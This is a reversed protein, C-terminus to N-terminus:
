PGHPVAGEGAATGAAGAADADTDADAADADATVYARLLEIADGQKLAAGRARAPEFGAGLERRLRGALLAA